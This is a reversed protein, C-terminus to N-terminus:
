QGIHKKYAEADMLEDLPSADEVEIKVMWGDGYPDKNVIEPSDNISANVEKVKGTLPAYIDAVTKVAEITGITDGKTVEELDEDIDVFVIDGLEGQAHDTIGIVGVNGDMKIWEHDETYKLGEPFNM